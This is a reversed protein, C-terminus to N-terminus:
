EKHSYLPKTESMKGVRNRKGNMKKEIYKKKRKKNEKEKKRSKERMELVSLFQVV